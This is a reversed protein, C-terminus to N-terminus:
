IKEKEIKILFNFFSFGASGRVSALRGSAATLDV